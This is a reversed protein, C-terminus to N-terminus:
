HTPHRGSPPAQSQFPKLPKPHHPQEPELLAAPLGQATPLVLMQLAPLLVLFQGLWSCPLHLPPLDPKDTQGGDPLPLGDHDAPLYVIEGGTCIAVYGDRDAAGAYPAALRVFLSLSLALALALGWRENLKRCYALM